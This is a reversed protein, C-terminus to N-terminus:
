NLFFSRKLFFSKGSGWPGDIMVAYDYTTDDLYLELTKLLQLDNMTEM